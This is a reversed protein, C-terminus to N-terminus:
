RLVTTSRDLKNKFLIIWYFYDIVLYSVIVLYFFIYIYLPPPPSARNYNSYWIGHSWEVLIDFYIEM